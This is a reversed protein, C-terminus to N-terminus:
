TRARLWQVLLSAGILCFWLEEKAQDPADRRLAFSLEGIGGTLQVSSPARRALLEVFSVAIPSEFRTKNDKMALLLRHIDLEKAVLSGPATTFRVGIRYEGGVLPAFPLLLSFGACPADVPSGELVHGEAGTGMAAWGYRGDKRVLAFFSEARARGATFRLRARAIALVAGLAAAVAVATMVLISEPVVTAAALGLGSAAAVLWAISQPLAPEPHAAPVPPPPEDPAAVQDSTIGPFAPQVARNLLLSIGSGVPTPSENPDATIV